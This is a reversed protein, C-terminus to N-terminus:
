IILYESLLFPVLSCNYLSMPSYEYWKGAFMKINSQQKMGVGLVSHRLIKEGTGNELFYMPDQPFEHSDTPCNVQMSYDTDKSCCDVKHLPSNICMKTILPHSISHVHSVPSSSTSLSLSKAHLWHIVICRIFLDEGGRHGSYCTMGSPNM